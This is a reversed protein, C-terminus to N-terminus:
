TRLTVVTTLSARDCYNDTIPDCPNNSGDDTNSGLETSIRIVQGSADPVISLSHIMVKPDLLYQSSGDVADGCNPKTDRAISYQAATYPTILGINWKYRVGGAILCGSNIQLGNTSSTSSMTRTLDSVLLRASEHVRKVTIGKNYAQNIQVFGAVLFLLVFSFLATALLLEILTFGAQNARKM